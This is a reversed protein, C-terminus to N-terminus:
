ACAAEPSTLALVTLLHDGGDDPSLRGAASELAATTTASAEFLGCRHLAATARDTASGGGLDVFLDLSLSDLALSTKLLQRGAGAWQPGVPWGAVNPPYLPMQGLDNLAWVSDASIDTGLAHHAAVFWEVPFRARNLRTAAFDPSRLIAEVVPLVEFDHDRLVAALEDRRADDLESGAFYRHLKTVLFAACAPQDVIVDVLRDADFTDTVGLVTLRGTAAAEEDFGVAESDWDVTYGALAKAAARVDAETYEGRGLTFLEMLERALNENPAEAKSGASDLFILMAADHVIAHLLDRVNGSAHRRLLNHQRCMMDASAKDASSTLHGHWFWVLKDHLPAPTRRLRRLWWVVAPDSDDDNPEPMEAGDDAASAIMADVADDFSTTAEVEGPAPGFGTRRVLHAVAAADPHDPAM